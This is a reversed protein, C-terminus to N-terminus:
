ITLSAMPERLDALRLPADLPGFRQDTGLVDHGLRSLEQCVVSGLRGTAGTVLVKMAGAAELM